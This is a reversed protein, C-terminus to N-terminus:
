ADKVDGKGPKRSAAAVNAQSALTSLEVRLSRVEQMVPQVVTRHHIYWAVFRVIFFLAAVMEFVVLIGDFRALIMQACESKAQDTSSWFEPNTGASLTACIASDPRGGWGGFSGFSAARRYVSLLGAAYTANRAMHVLHLATRQVDHIITWPMTSYAFVYRRNYSTAQQADLPFSTRFFLKHYVVQLDRLFQTESDTHV